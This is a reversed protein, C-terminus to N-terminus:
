KKFFYYLKYKILNDPIMEFLKLLNKKIRWKIETTFNLRKKQSIIRQDVNLRNLNKNIWCGKAVLHRIFIFKKNITYFKDYNRVYKTGKIEFEWPNKFRKLLDIFLQRNWVTFFLSSKYLAYKDLNFINNEVKIFGIPKPMLRLYNVDNVFSWNLYYNLLKIDVNKYFIFDELCYIIYKTKIKKISELIQDAWNKGPNNTLIMDFYSKNKPQYYDECILYKKIQNDFTLFKKANIEFIELAPLNNNYTSVIFSFNKLNNIM